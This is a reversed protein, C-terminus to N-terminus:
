ISRKRFKKSRRLSLSKVKRASRSINRPSRYLGRGRRQANEAARQRFREEKSMEASTMPRTVARAVPRWAAYLHSESLPPGPEFSVSGSAVPTAETLPHGVAGWHGDLPHHVMNNAQTWGHRAKLINGINTNDYNRSVSLRLAAQAPNRRSLQRGTQLFRQEFTRIRSGPRHGRYYNPADWREQLPMGNPLRSVLTNPHLSGRLHKSKRRFTGARASM